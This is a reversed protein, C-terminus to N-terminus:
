LITNQYHQPLDEAIQNILLDAGSDLIGFSILPNLIQGFANELSNLTQRLIL